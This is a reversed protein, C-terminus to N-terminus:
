PNRADAWLVSRSGLYLLAEVARKVWRPGRLRPLVVNRRANRVGNHRTLTDVICNLESRLETTEPRGNLEAAVDTKAPSSRAVIDSRHRWPGAM